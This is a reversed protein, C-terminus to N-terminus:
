AGLPSQDQYLMSHAIVTFDPSTSHLTLGLLNGRANIKGADFGSLSLGGVTWVITGLTANQWTVVGLSANQWIVPFTASNITIPLTQLGANELVYDVTGTITYGTGSNDQAQTYLRMAQKTIQFGDGPWLRTQYLKRLTESSQAFLQFVTNGDTGYATLESNIEQSAIFTLNTDQSGLFWKKGDWMVLGLREAGTLPDILPMLLMYVPITYIHAM